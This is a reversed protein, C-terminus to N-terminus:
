LTGLELYPVLSENVDKWTADDEWSVLYLSSKYL